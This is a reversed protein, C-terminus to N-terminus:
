KMRRRAHLGRRSVRDPRGCGWGFGILSGGTVIHMIYFHVYYHRSVNKLVYFHM